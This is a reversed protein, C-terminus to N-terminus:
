SAARQAHIQAPSFSFLKPEALSLGMNSSTMGGASACATTPYAAATAATTATTSVRECSPCMSLTTAPLQMYLLQSTKLARLEQLENQLRRNEETLTEYSKKIYECDVQTQKM